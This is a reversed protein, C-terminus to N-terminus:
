FASCSMTLEADGFLHVAPPNLEDQWSNATVTCEVSARFVNGVLARARVVSGVRRSIQVQRATNRAMLNGASPAETGVLFNVSGTSGNYLTLPKKADPDLTFRVAVSFEIDQGQQFRLTCAPLVVEACGTFGEVTSGSDATAV